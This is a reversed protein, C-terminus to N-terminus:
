PDELNAVLVAAASYALAHALPPWWRWGRRRAVVVLLSCWFGACWRCTVLTALKPASGGDAVAVDAWAGPEAPEPRSAEARGAATYAAEVIRDRPGDLITDATALRTLRFAALADVLATLPDAM